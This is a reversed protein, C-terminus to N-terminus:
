SVCGAVLFPAGQKERYVGIFALKPDTVTIGGAVFGPLREAIAKAAAYASEARLNRFMDPTLGPDGIICAISEVGEFNRYLVCLGKLSTGAFLHECSTAGSSEIRCTHASVSDVSFDCRYAYAPTQLILGAVIASLVRM